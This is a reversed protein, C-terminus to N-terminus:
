SSPDEVPLRLRVTTGRGPESAFRLAGGHERVIASSVALGLGSRGRQRKTTFFPDCVHRLDDPSIGIGEDRVLLVVHAGDRETSLEIASEGDPLAECANLVLNIVVQELRRPHGRVPPLDNAYRVRFRSTAKRISAAVLTLASRIVANLHASGLEDGVPERAYDRLAAVLDRIREGGRVLENLLEPIERCAEAYPFNALAFGPHQRAYAELAPEADRWVDALLPVNLLIHHNPNNIEHALGSVLTGLSMLKDAAILREHEAEREAERRREDTVDQVTGTIRQVEGKEDRVTEFRSLLLREEGDPRRWGCEFSGRAPVDDPAAIAELRRRDEQTMRETYFALPQAERVDVGLIRRAAASSTFRATVPDFEWSGSRGIEEAQALLRGQRALESERAAREALEKRLAANVRELERTREALRTALMQRDSEDRTVDIMVGEIGVVRGRRDRLPQDIAEFYRVSGDAHAIPWLRPPPEEGELVRQCFSLLASRTEADPAYDLVSTGVAEAPKVGLVPEVSASVSVLRLARDMRYFVGGSAFGRDGNARAM